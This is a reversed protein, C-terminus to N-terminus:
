RVSCQGAAPRAAVLISDITRTLTRRHQIAITGFPRMLVEGLYETLGEYVWLLRTKQPTQFNPTCMGAPRRFKGCWSHVYEHPLLNAVWGRLSRARDHREAGASAPRWTSWGWIDWTTVARSPPLAVSLTALASCRGPRSCLPSYIAVIQPSAEVATPSRSVLDLFAPPYPGAASPIQQVHEGAIMPNDVLDTLSVERFHVSKRGGGHFGGIMAGTESTTGDDKLACAFNWKQPMRVTLDVRTEDASPGPYMLLHGLQHHRVVQEYTLYGAADVAPKSCIVDLRVTVSKVGGPVECEVRYVDTEDQRQPCMPM